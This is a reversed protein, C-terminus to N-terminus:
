SGSMLMDQHAVNGPIRVGQPLRGPAKIILPVHINTEYLGHHDFWIQHELLSEGHDGTLIVITNDALGLEDLRTFMRALCADMYAIAGDYQAIVYKGDTIGPPMWSRFFDAFPAFDFVQQMNDPGELHRPDCEDEGSYFMRDF